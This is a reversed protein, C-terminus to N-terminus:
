NGVIVVTLIALTVGFHSDMTAVDTLQYMKFNHDVFICKGTCALSLQRPIIEELPPETTTITDNDTDDDGEIEYEAYEYHMPKIYSLHYDKGFMFGPLGNAGSMDFYYGNKPVLLHSMDRRFQDSLIYNGDIM